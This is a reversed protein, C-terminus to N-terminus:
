SVFHLAYLYILIMLGHFNEFIYLERFLSCEIQYQFVFSLIYPLTHYIHSCTIAVVPQAISLPQLHYKSAFLLANRHYLGVISALINLVFNGIQRLEVLSSRCLITYQVINIQPCWTEIRSPALEIIGINGGGVPQELRFLVIIQFQLHCPKIVPASLLLVPLGDIQIGVRGNDSLFLCCCTGTAFPLCFQEILCVM